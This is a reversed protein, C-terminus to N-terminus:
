KKSVDYIFNGTRQAEQIKDLNKEFEADSMKMVDSERIRKSSGDADLKTTSSKTKVDAAADKARAKKAAPTLGKDAKYLDIVRIVAKANDENDYLANKIWEPQEEAWDHFEDANKLKDFDAHVERIAAEAKTRKTEYTLEDLEQFRSQTKDFMEKAKKAAITEVIGAVDPYKKAWAELSEDSAPPAFGKQQQKGALAEFKEEWEKEKQSLHRRLDGYRKKFTKEESSLDEEGVDSDDTDVDAKTETVEADQEEEESEEEGQTAKLLEELEKEDEEIRKRNKRNNYNPDVMVTKPTASVAQTSM